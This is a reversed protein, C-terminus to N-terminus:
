FNDFSFRQPPRSSEGGGGGKTFSPEVFKMIIQRNYQRPGDPHCQVDQKKVGVHHVSHFELSDRLVGMEDLIGRVIKELDEQEKVRTGILNLNERRFYMDLQIKKQKKAELVAKLTTVQKNLEEIKQKEGEVDEKLSADSLSTQVASVDDHARKIQDQM